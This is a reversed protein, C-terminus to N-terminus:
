RSKFCWLYKSKICLYIKKCKKKKSIEALKITADYNIQETLEPMFAGLPDNSLSALHIVVDVGELDRKEIDRLDKRINSYTEEFPSLLCDEFYGIDYGIVSYNKKLLMPLLVSGIYGKNGTVLIKM